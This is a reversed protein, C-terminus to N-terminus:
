RAGDMGLVVHEDVHGGSVLVGDDAGGDAAEAADGVAHGDVELAQLGGGDGLTGRLYGSGGVASDGSSEDLGCVRELDEGGEYGGVVVSGADRLDEVDEDLGPVMVSSIMASGVLTRRAALWLRLMRLVMVRVMDVLSWAALTGEPPPTM